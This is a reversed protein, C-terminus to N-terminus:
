TGDGWTWGRGPSTERGSACQRGKSQLKLAEMPSPLPAPVIGDMRELLGLSRCVRLFSSLQTSRGAELREVTRKSVGAEDALEQQTQNRQLRLRRVRAGIEGLVVDDSHHAAIKM